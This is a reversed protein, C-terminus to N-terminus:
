QTTIKPFLPLTLILSTLFLLTFSLSSRSHSNHLLEQLFERAPYLLKLTYLPKYAQYLLPTKRGRALSTKRTSIDKKNKSKNSIAKFEALLEVCCNVGRKCHELLFLLQTVPVYSTEKLPPLTRYFKANKAFLTM